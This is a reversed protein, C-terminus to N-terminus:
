YTPVFSILRKSKSETSVFPNDLLKLLKIFSQRFLTKNKFLLAWIGTIKSFFVINKLKGDQVLYKDSRVSLIIKVFFYCLKPLEFTRLTTLKVILM